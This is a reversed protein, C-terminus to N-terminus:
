VTWNLRRLQNWQFGFADTYNNDEPVFSPINNVIPYSEGNSGVLIGNEERLLSGTKPCIFEQIM